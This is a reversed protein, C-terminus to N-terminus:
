DISYNIKEYDLNNIEKEYIIIKSNGYIKNKRFNEEDNSYFALIKKGLGEAIHGISTDPSIVADSRRIISVADMITKSNNYFYTREVDSKEMIKLIENRDAPSDLVVISHDPYYQRLKKLIILANETKIKREDISGFFNVAINKVIKKECFYKEINNESNKVLPIDYQKNLNLIGIEMLMEEWVDAIRGEPKPIKKNYIKYNEKNFGLNIAANIKRMLLIQKPSVEESGLFDFLVDYRKNKSNRLIEKIKKKKEIFNKRNFIVYSDIYPNNELFEEIEKGGGVLVDIIIGPYKRKIERFIFSATIYEGIKWEIKFFLIRKINEPKLNETKKNVDLLKSVLYKIRKEIEKM